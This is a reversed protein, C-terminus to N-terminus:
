ASDNSSRSAPYNEETVDQVRSLCDPLSGRGRNEILGCGCNHRRHSAFGAMVVLTSLM